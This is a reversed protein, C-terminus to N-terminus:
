GNVLWQGSVKEFSVGREAYGCKRYFEPAEDTFLCIHQGPLHDELLRLIERAIGQRRYGTQTWVDVVYANCIGDSLARAMGVLRDGDFAFACLASNRLSVDYQEPTRGNDWDDASLIRKLDEGQIGDLGLQYRIAM